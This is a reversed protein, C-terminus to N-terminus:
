ELPDVANAEYFFESLAENSLGAEREAYKQAAPRDKLAWAVISNKVARDRLTKDAIQDSALEILDQYSERGSLTSAVYAELAIDKANTDKQNLAWEKAAGQDHDIWEDMVVKMFGLQEQRTTKEVLLNAMGRPDKNVWPDIIMRISEDRNGVIHDLYDSALRPNEVAIGAVFHPIVAVHQDEELNNLWDTAAAPDKQVWPAVLARMAYDRNEEPLKQVLALADQPNEAATKKFLEALAHNRDALDNLDSAWDLAAKPDAESLKRVIIESGSVQNQPDLYNRTFLRSAHKTYFEAATHIDGEVWKELVLAVMGDKEGKLNKSAVLAGAPDVEAWRAFLIPLLSAREGRSLAAVRQFEGQLESESFDNCASSYALTQEVSNSKQKKRISSEGNLSKGGTSSLANQRELSSSAESPDNTLKSVFFGSLFALTVTGLFKVSRTLHM